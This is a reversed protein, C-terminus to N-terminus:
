PADNYEADVLVERLMWRAYSERKKDGRALSQQLIDRWQPISVRRWEQLIWPPEEANVQQPVHPLVEPKRSLLLLALPEESKPGRIVLSDGRRWVQLGAAKAQNLLSVGDM